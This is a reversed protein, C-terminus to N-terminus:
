VGNPDDPDPIEEDEAPTHIVVSEVMREKLSRIEAAVARVEELDIDPRELLETLRELLTNVSAHVTTLESVEDIIEQLKTM